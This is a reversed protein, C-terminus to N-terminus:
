VPLEVAGVRCLCVVRSLDKLWASGAAAAAAAAAGCTLIHEKVEALGSDVGAQLGGAHARPGVATRSKVLGQEGATNPFAM